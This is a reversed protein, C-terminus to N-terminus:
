PRAEPDQHIFQEFTASASDMLEPIATLYWYTDAVKGHGLYTSLAPLLLALNAGEQQWAALRQTAFTHRLDYMRPCRTGDAPIWGLRRLLTRFTSRLTGYVIARGNDTLFFAVSLPASCHQERRQRDAALADRTSAALPVLRSKHFKTERVTLLCQGLDVDRDALRLAESVRMGTCALLGFLTAYTDHRLGNVPRLMACADLLAVIEETSYIHPSVRRHAPGLIGTPPIQTRRDFIALYRAFCRVVELRRAWYLPTADTPLRAWRLALLTDLPGTPAEADAFAAFQMLLAGETRLKFGLSRCFALYERALLTLRGASM